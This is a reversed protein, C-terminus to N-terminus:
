ILFFIAEETGRSFIEEDMIGDCYTDGLFFFKGDGNPRLIYPVHAGFLIVIVDGPCTQLPGLGVYGSRSLYPRRNGMKRMRLCYERSEISKRELDQFEAVSISIGAKVGEMAEGIALVAMYAADLPVTIRRLIWGDTQELDGVPVRWVAEVQRKSDSYIGRSREASKTCMHRVERLFSLYSCYPFEADVGDGLWSSGVEDVKDVVFGRLALVREDDVSEIQPQTDGSASFLRPYYDTRDGTVTWFPWQLDSRWDPVWSPLGQRNSLWDLGWALSDQLDSLWNPTRASLRWETKPFQSFSLVELHGDQVIKRATSTYLHALERRSRKTYDVRIDLKEPGADNALSLIGFIRDRPDTAEVKNGAYLGKLLEFLGAGPGTGNEFGRRRRRAPFLASTPNTVICQYRHVDEANSGKSKLIELGALGFIWIASEVLEVRVREQGCVFYTDAGLCFEQLVWIRFFWPRKYFATMADLISNDLKHKFEDRIRQFGIIKQNNTSSTASVINGLEKGGDKKTHYNEIGWKRAEEGLQTFIGMVVDSGDATPGLWILVEKAGSYIKGM